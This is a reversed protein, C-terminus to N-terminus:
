RIEEHWRKFLELAAPQHHKLGDVMDETTLFHEALQWQSLEANAFEPSKSVITEFRNICAQYETTPLIEAHNLHPHRELANYLGEFLKAGLSTTGSGYLSVLLYPKADVDDNPLFTNKLKDALDAADFSRLRDFLNTFESDGCGDRLLQAIVVATHSKGSGYSGYINLARQEQTAEAQVAKQIHTLLTVAAKTPAFKNVLNHNSLSQGVVIAAPTGTNNIEILNQLQTM